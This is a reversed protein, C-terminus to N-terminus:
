KGLLKEIEAGLKESNSGIDKYIIKGENDLLLKTPFANIGYLMVPSNVTPGDNDLVQIWNIGDELVAKQWAAKQADLGKTMEHAIGLIEFGKDKYKNYLEKLHPHSKRCPGCWSGWFDLLVYKGKMSAITILNGNVDKRNLEIAQKGTATNQLAIIKAAIKKGIETQKYEPAILNFKSELSDLSLIAMRQSLYYLSIFSSPNSKMFAHRLDERKRNLEQLRAGNTTDKNEMRQQLVEKLQEVLKVDAMKIQDWEKNIAGGKVAATQISKADGEITIVENTLVLDVYPSQFKRIGNVFELSDNSYILKAMVPANVKGKTVLWGKRESRLTDKMQQDGQSYQLVLTGQDISKIKARVKYQQALVTFPLCLAALSAAIKIKM